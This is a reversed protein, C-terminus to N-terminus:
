NSLCEHEFPDTLVYSMANLQARVMDILNRLLEVDPADDSELVSMLLAVREQLTLVQKTCRQKHLEVCMCNM